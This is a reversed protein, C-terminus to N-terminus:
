RWSVRAEPEGEEGCGKHVGCDEAVHGGDNLPQVQTAGEVLGLPSVQLVEKGDILDWLLQSLPHLVVELGHPAEVLADVDVLHPPKIM